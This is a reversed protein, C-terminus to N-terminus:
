ETDENIERERLFIKERRESYFYITYVIDQLVTM